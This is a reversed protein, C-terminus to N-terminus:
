RGLIPDANTRTRLKEDVFSRCDRPDSIIQTDDAIRVDRYM